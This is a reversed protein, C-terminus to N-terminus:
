SIHDLATACFDIDSKGAVRFNDLDRLDRRLNPGLENICVLHWLLFDMLAKKQASKYSASHGPGLM